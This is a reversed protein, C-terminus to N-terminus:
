NRLGLAACIRVTGAGEIYVPVCVSRRHPRAEAKPLWALMLALALAAISRTM